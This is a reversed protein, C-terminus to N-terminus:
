CWMACPSPAAHVSGRFNIAYRQKVSNIDNVEALNASISRVRQISILSLVVTLMIVTLFAVGLRTRIKMAARHPQHLKM